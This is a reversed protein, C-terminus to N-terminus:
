RLNLILEAFDRFAGRGGPEVCLYHVTEKVEPMADSPAGTLGTEGIARLIGLDNVDDGIYALQAVSLETEELIRDLHALKDLLGMYLFTLKLKEARRAVIPSRERTIFATEVGAERLREVGMGDRLSFKKLAEGEPSVYVGGDTLTGDVDTLVLRVRRARLALEEEPLQLTGRITHRALHM